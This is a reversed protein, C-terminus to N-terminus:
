QISFSNDDVLVPIMRDPPNDVWNCSLKNLYSLKALEHSVDNAEGKCHKFEVMWILNAVDLCEVYVVATM